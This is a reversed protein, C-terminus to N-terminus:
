FIPVFQCGLFLVSGWFVSFMYPVWTLPKQTETAFTLETEKLGIISDFISIWWQIDVQLSLMSYFM